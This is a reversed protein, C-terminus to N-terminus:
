KYLNVEDQLGEIVSRGCSVQDTCCRTEGEWRLGNLTHKQTDTFTHTPLKVSRQMRKWERGDHKARGEGRRRTRKSQCHCSDWVEECVSVATKSVLLGSSWVYLKIRQLFHLWQTWRHEWHVECLHPSTYASKTRTWRNIFLYKFWANLRYSWFWWFFNVPQIQFLM